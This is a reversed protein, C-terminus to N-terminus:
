RLPGATAGCLTVPAQVVMRILGVRKEDVEFVVAYPDDSPLPDIDSRLDRDVVVTIRVVAVWHPEVDCYIM